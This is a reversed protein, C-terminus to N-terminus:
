YARWRTDSKKAAAGANLTCSDPRRAPSLEHGVTGTGARATWFGEKAGTLVGIDEETDWTWLVWGVIGLSCSGVQWDVLAKAGEAESPYIGRYAGFESIVLPQRITSNIGFNEAYQALTLGTFRPYMHLAIFDVTSTAIVPLPRTLRSGVYAPNPGGPTPFGISVIATPDVARIAAHVENAYHVLNDDMMRLKAAPDAMDYSRGNGTTVAGKTLTFPPATSDFYVENFLEYALVADLPAGHSILARAFDAWFLQSAEIGGATLFNLNVKQFLPGDQAYLRARYTPIRPIFDLTFVVQLRHAKARKVFDAVNSMYGASLRDSASDALGGRTLGDLFVRVVNYQQEEM